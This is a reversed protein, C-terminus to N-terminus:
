EEFFYGITKWSGTIGNFAERKRERDSRFDFTNDYAKMMALVCGAVDRSSVPQNGNKDVVYELESDDDLDESEPYMEKMKEIVDKPIYFSSLRDGDNDLIRVGRTNDDFFTFNFFQEADNLIKAMEDMTKNTEFHSERNKIELSIKTIFESM